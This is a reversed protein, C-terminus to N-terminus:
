KEEGGIERKKEKKRKRKIRKKEGKRRKGERGEEERPWAARSGSGGREEHPRGPGAGGRRQDV